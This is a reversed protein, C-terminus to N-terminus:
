PFIFKVSSPPYANGANALLTTAIIVSSHWYCAHSTQRRSNCAAMFFAAVQAAKKLKDSPLKDALVKKQMRMM